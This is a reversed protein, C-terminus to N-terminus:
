LSSFSHQPRSNQGPLFLMSAYENMSTPEIISVKWNHHDFPCKTEFIFSINASKFFKSLHESLLAGNSWLFPQFYDKLPWEYIVYPLKEYKQGEEGGRHCCSM